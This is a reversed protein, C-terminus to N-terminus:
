EDLFEEEEYDDWSDDDFEEIDDFDEFDDYDVVDEFEEDDDAWQNEETDGPGTFSFLSAKM